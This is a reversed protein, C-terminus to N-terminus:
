GKDAARLGLDAATVDLTAFNAFSLDRFVLGLQGRLKEFL